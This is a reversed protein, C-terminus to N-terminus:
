VIQEALTRRFQSLAEDTDITFGCELGIYGNYGANKLAQLINLYNLEGTGPQKRGPNDAIHYHGIRGMHHIANRTVNGETIQQHYIDFLMKVNPSNVRDIISAAEDSKQLYQGQHNVLGNLPEVELVIDAKECLPACQKLTEVMTDRQAERSVDSLENGTISIINKINLRQCAEITQKLGHLFLDRQKVDVLSCLPVSTASIEVGIRSLAKAVENIDIEQWHFHELGHFGHEKVKELHYVTDKDKYIGYCFSYKM